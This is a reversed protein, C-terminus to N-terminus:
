EVAALFSSPALLRLRSFIIRYVFGLHYGGFRFLAVMPLSSTQRALLPFSMTSFRAPSYVTLLLCANNNSLKKETIMNNSVNIVVIKEIYM